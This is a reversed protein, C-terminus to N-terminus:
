DSRCEIERRTFVAFDFWICEGILLNGEISIIESLGNLNSIDDGRIIVDGKIENCGIYLEQFNDIDQQNTLYYNGYPLCSIDFGCNNAVEGPNNCGRANDYIEVIGRPNSLYDCFSLVECNSLSSNNNISLNTVSTTNIINMNLGTLSALASNFRITLDGGIMALNELGELSLLQGNWRIRLDGGCNTLNELGQLNQLSDNDSIRLDGGVSVLKDLGTFNTLINNQNIM